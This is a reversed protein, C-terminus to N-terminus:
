YDSFLESKKIVKISGPETIVGISAPIGPGRLQTIPYGAIAFPQFRDIFKIGFDDTRISAVWLCDGRPYRLQKSLEYEATSGKGVCYLYFTENRYVDSYDRLDFSRKIAKMSYGNFTVDVDANVFFAWNGEVFTAGSFALDGGQFGNTGLFDGEQPSMMLCMAAGSNDPNLGSLLGLGDIAVTKEPWSTSVNLATVRFIPSGNRRRDIRLAPSYMNGLTGIFIGTYVHSVIDNVGAGFSFVESHTRCLSGNNADWVVFASWYGEADYAWSTEILRDGEPSPDLKPPRAPNPTHISLMDTTVITMAIKTFGTVPDVGNATWTFGLTFGRMVTPTGVTHYTVMMTSLHVGNSLPGPVPCMDVTVFLDLVSGAKAGLYDIVLNYYQSKDMVVMDSPKPNCTLTKTREDYDWKYSLPFYWREKIQDLQAIATKADSFNVIQNSQWYNKKPKCHYSGIGHSTSFRDRRQPWNKYPMQAHFNKTIGIKSNPQRGFVRQPIYKSQLEPRLKYSNGDGGETMRSFTGRQQDDREGCFQEIPIPNVAGNYEYIDSFFRPFGAVGFPSPTVLQNDWSYSKGREDVAGVPNNMSLYDQKPDGTRNFRFYSTVYPAGGTMQSGNCMIGFGPIWSWTTFAFMATFKYIDFSVEQSLEDASLNLPNGSVTDVYPKKWKPSISMVKTNINFDYDVSMYLWGSGSGSANTYTWYNLLFVKIKATGPVDKNEQVIFVRRRHTSCFNVPQNWDIYASILQGQANVKYDGFRVIQNTKRVRDVTDYNLTIVTPTIKPKGPATLASVPFSFFLQTHNEAEHGAPRGSTTGAAENYSQILLIQDGVKAITLGGPYMGSAPPYQTPNRTITLDVEVFSHSAPDLTGNTLTVMLNSTNDWQTIALVDQGSGAVVFEPNIGKLTLDPHTYPIYTVVMESQNYRDLLEKQYIYNLRKVRGDFQRMLGVIWGNGERVFCSNDIDGGLGEFSGTIPPPLYIGSGYYSIPLENQFIFEESDPETTELIEKIGKPTSYLDQRMGEQEQQKNATQYNALNGLEVDVPKVGHPNKAKNAHNMIANWQLSQIYDLNAFVDKQLKDLLVTVVQGNNKMRESLLSFLQILNGFGVVEDPKTVDMSHKAPPVTKPIGTVSTTFDIDGGNITMNELAELLVKRSIVPSGVKQYEIDIEPTSVLVHDKLEIYHYVDRGLENTLESAPTDFTYDKEYTLLTGRDYVRLGATYFPGEEPVIWPRPIDAVLHKEKCKYKPDVSSYDIHVLEIDKM